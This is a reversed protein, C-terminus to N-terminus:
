ASMKDGTQPRVRRRGACSKGPSPTVKIDSKNNWWWTAGVEQGGVKAGEGKRKGEIPRFFVTTSLNVPQHHPTAKM